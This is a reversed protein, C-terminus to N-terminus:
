KELIKSTINDASHLILMLPTERGRLAEKAGDMYLGNHYAIAQFEEPTLEIGFKNCLLISYMEHPLQVLHENYVFPEKIFKSEDPNPLYMCEGPLGLKGVDHLLASKTVSDGFDNFSSTLLIPNNKFLVDSFNEASKVVEITHDIWGGYYSCHYKTSAPCLTLYYGMQEFMRVIHGNSLDDLRMCIKWLDDLKYKTIVSKKLFEFPINEHKAADKLYQETYEQDYTDPENEFENRLEIVVDKIRESM